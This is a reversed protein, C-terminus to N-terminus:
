SIFCPHDGAVFVNPHGAITLDAGVPVRGSRDVRVGLERGLPSAEVGAAWLVTKANLKEDEMEVGTSDVHTVRSETWVVAGLKELDRTARESLEKSFSPLIRSGAEVLVVRTLKPDINRYDKALTFRSMEGIAGALEVGTPGGGVVVFTLWAKRIVPDPESEAREFASLVRRRIETAHEM